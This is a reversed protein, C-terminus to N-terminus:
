LFTFQLSVTPREESLSGKTLTTIVKVGVVNQGTTHTSTTADFPEGQGGVVATALASANLLQRNLTLEGCLLFKVFTRKIYEDCNYQDELVSWDPRRTWPSTSGESTWSQHQVPVASQQDNERQCARRGGRSKHRYPGPSARRLLFRTLARSPRFFGVAVSPTHTPPKRRSWINLM